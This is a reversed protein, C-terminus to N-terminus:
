VDHPVSAHRLARQAARGREMSRNSPSSLGGQVIIGVDGPGNGFLSTSIANPSGDAQRALATSEKEHLFCGALIVHDLGDHHRNETADQAIM